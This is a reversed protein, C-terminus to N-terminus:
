PPEETCLRRPRSAPTPPLEGNGCINFFYSYNSSGVNNSADNVQYYTGAKFPKLNFTSNGANFLCLDQAQAAPLAAGLLLAAAATAPAGARM